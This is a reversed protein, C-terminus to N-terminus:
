SLSAQERACVHGGRVGRKSSMVNRGAMQRTTALYHAGGGLVGGLLAAAAGTLTYQMPTVSHAEHTHEMADAMM